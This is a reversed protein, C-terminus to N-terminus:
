MSEEIFCIDYKITWIVVTCYVVSRDKLLVSFRQRSLFLFYLSQHIKMSRLNFMLRRNKSLVLM